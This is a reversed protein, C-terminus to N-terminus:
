EEKRVTILINKPGLVNKDEYLNGNVQESLYLCWSAYKGLKEVLFQNRKFHGECCPMMILHRAESELYLNCIQESLNGCAHVAIIISNEDLEIKDKYIDKQHYEFRKVLHWPRDRDKKDIAVANRVPLMFVSLVSTLANGACLDVVSYQMPHKLTIHKLKKIVSMSETIEKASKHGLLNVVNLVDGCCKLSLFEQLYPNM